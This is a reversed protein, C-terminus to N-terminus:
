GEELEEEIVEEEEDEGKKKQEYIGALTNGNKFIWTGKGNPKNNEFAGEYYM